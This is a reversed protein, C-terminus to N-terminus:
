KSYYLSNVTNSEVLISNQNLATIVEDMINIIQEESVDYFVYVLTNEKTETGTEDVWGGHADITTYGGIYKECISNVIERAEDTPILQTYTDKDNTGIYLTYKESTTTEEGGITNNVTNGNQYSIYTITGISLVLNICLLITIFRISSKNKEQM